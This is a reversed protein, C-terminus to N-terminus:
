DEDFGYTQLNHGESSKSAIIDIQKRNHKIEKFTVYDCGSAEIEDLIKRLESVSLSFKM